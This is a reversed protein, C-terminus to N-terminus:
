APLQEGLADAGAGHLSAFGLAARLCRLCGQQHQLFEFVLLM